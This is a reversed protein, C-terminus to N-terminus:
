KNGYAKKFKEIITHKLEKIDASEKWEVLLSTFGYAALGCGIGLILIAFVGWTPLPGGESFAFAIFSVGLVGVVMYKQHKPMLGTENISNTKQKM